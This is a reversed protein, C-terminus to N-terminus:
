RRDTARRLAAGVSARDLCKEFLVGDALPLAAVTARSSSRGDVLVVVGASPVTRRLLALAPAVPIGSADCVRTIVADAKAEAVLATAEDIRKCTRLTVGLARELRGLARREADSVVVAIIRPAIVQWRENRTQM